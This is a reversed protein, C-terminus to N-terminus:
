GAATATALGGAALMQCYKAVMAPVLPVLHERPPPLPLRPFLISQLPRPLGPSPTSSSLPPSSLPPAPYPRPLAPSPHLQIPPPAPSPNPISARGLCWGKGGPGRQTRLGRQGWCNQHSYSLRQTSPSCGRSPRRNQELGPAQPQPWCSRSRVAGPGTKQLPCTAARDVRRSAKPFLGVTMFPLAVRKEWIREQNQGPQGPPRRRQEPSPCAPHYSVPQRTEM